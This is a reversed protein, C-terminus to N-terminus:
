AKIVEATANVILEGVRQTYAAAPKYLEGLGVDLTCPNNRYRGRTELVM